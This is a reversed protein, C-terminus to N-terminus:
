QHINKQLLLGRNAKIGSPLFVSSPIHKMHVPISLRQENGWLENRARTSAAQNHTKKRDTVFKNQPNRPYLLKDTIPIWWNWSKGSSHCCETIYCGCSYVGRALTYYRHLNHNKQTDDTQERMLQQQCCQWLTHSFGTNQWPWRLFGETKLSQSM